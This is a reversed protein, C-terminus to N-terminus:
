QSFTPKYVLWLRLGLAGTFTGILTHQHRIANTKASFSLAGVSFVITRTRGIGAVGIKGKLQMRFGEIELEAFIPYFTYLFLYRVYRVVLKYSWFQMRKFSRKLWTMILNLDRLKLGLYFTLLSDFLFIANGLLKQFHLIKSRWLIIRGYEHPTLSSHLFFQIMFASPMGLAREALRVLPTETTLFQISDFPLKRRYTSTQAKRSLNDVVRPVNCGIQNKYKNKFRFLLFSPTINKLQFKQLSPRLLLFLLHTRRKNWNRNRNKGKWRYLRFNSRFKRRLKFLPSVRFRFASRFRFRSKYKFKYKPM